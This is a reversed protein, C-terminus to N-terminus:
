IMKDIQEIAWEPREVPTFSHTDEEAKTGFVQYGLDAGYCNVWRRLDYHKGGKEFTWGWNNILYYPKVNTVGEIAKLAKELDDYLM